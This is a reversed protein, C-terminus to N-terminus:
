EEAVANFCDDKLRACTFEGKKLNTNTLKVMFYRGCRGTQKEANEVIVSIKDGRFQMRFDKQLSKDLESLTSSRHKIVAPPIQNDMKAAATGQRKSFSFVHIKAFDAFKAMEISEQFDEETESPFGAIIDTTIAPRDIVSKVRTICDRFEDANYQRNMKKLIRSSGSQLSLHLHPALSSHKKFLELLGDTVDGPELSSLRLRKLGELSAIKDVLRTFRNQGCSDWRKRKVTTQGYAGLFIGTLVIERHGFDIMEKAEQLIDDEDRSYINRRIKPIICYSCFGDCGDQIKLFARSQGCFSDINDELIGTNSNKKVKNGSIANKDKIKYANITKSIPNHSNDANQQNEGETKSITILKLLLGKLDDKKSILVIKSQLDNIEETEADPLCGTAVVTTHPSAKLQKRLMQRSKASATHTICCTHVIAIDANEASKVEALGQSRLFKAIQRSEYQNVKCGLSNICFTKM